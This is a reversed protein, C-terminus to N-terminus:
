YQISIHEQGPPPETPLRSAHGTAIRHASWAAAAADLVDDLRAKGADGLKDPLDIGHKALGEFLDYFNSRNWSLGARWALYRGQIDVHGREELVVGEVDLVRTVAAM